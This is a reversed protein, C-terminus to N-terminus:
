QQKQKYRLYLIWGLVFSLLLAYLIWINLREKMKEYAQSFHHLQMFMGNREAKLQRIEAELDVENSLLEGIRHERAACQACEPPTPCTQPTEVTNKVPETIPQSYKKIPTEVNEDKPTEM